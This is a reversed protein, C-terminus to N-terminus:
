LLNLERRLMEYRPKENRSVYGPYFLCHQLVDADKVLEELPGHKVQKESHHYIASCIKEVEQDDFIDAKQLIDRAMAASRHAHDVVDGTTYSAIDHLYGASAALEVDEGRQMALMVCFEGVGFLHVYASAKMSEDATSELLTAAINRVLEIRDCRLEKSM